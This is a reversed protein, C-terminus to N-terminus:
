AQKRQAAKKSRALVMLSAGGMMKMALDKSIANLILRPGLMVFLKLSPNAKINHWTGDCVKVTVVEYGAYDLTAIASKRTFYHLHGFEERAYMYSDRVVSSVTLDIPISFVYHDARGHLSRLFGIYDDVHEFVDFNLALDYKGKEEDLSRNEYLVLNSTNVNKAREIAVPSVDIGMGRCQFEDCILRLHKGSGCGIDLVSRPSMDGIVALADRVKTEAHEEHFTDNREWYEGNEYISAVRFNGVDLM